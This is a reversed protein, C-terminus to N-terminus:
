KPKQLWTILLAAAISLIFGAIMTYLARNDKGRLEQADEITKLRLELAQVKSRLGSGNNGDLMNNLKEVGTATANIIGDLRELRIRVDILERDRAQAGTALASLNQAVAIVGQNIEALTPETM